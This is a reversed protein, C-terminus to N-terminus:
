AFARSLEEVILQQGRENPHIGDVCILSACDRRKLFASRVDILLCNMRRAIESVAYSYMEQYRYITQTDGLFKLIRERSLGTRTIWSLYRSADIPPLTMLIPQIGREKLTNIIDTYLQRFRSLETNPTHPADPEESVKEWDFDCDNGGYEVIACAVDEGERALTTKVIEAGRDATCGFKSLNRVKEACIRGWDLAKSFRYRGAAEDWIVGRLISDGFVYLQKEMTRVESKEYKYKLMNGRTKCTM